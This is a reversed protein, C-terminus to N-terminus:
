SIVQQVAGGLAFAQQQQLERSAASFREILKEVTLKKECSADIGIRGNYMM